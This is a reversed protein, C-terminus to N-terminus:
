SALAPYDTYGEATPGYFTSPNPENLERDDRWRAVLDPNAIVQRGVAVVDAHRESVFHMAEGRTTLQGFGSNAMLPGGFRVRLDQVLEGAPDAHLVSLYALGLPAIGDVLAEYTARTEAEDTEFVDQINHSPSIRIGVRDAGVAEAVATVTEIGFRARNAPSGGYTDTRVNSVPSLFQHLLYGNASHVEVGDFGAEIANRAARVIEATVAPLEETLLARPEAFAKKGLPTHTEGDIAIASPAVPTLGGTIEPHTMRGSHMLQMVIVGGEAHVAETVRRWGAIQEDTVIGPQGPYARSNPTPYTGETVILGTTARQRYHEVLLDNPVGADGARLRTLPAMVVRNSLALAGLRTPSFLEM